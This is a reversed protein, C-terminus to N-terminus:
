HERGAVYHEKEENVDRQSDKAQEDEWWVKKKSTPHTPPIEQNTGAKSLTSPADEQGTHRLSANERNLKPPM